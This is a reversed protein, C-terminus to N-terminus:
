PVQEVRVATPTSGGINVLIPDRDNNNGVYKVVGDLNVDAAHYGTITASPTSGGIALLIPDRDNGNGVYKLEGDGTVDGAWLLMTSGVQKQANTGYTAFGSQMFNITNPQATNSLMNLPAASMAALHNRHRVVVYYMGPTARLIVDGGIDGKGLRGNTRLLFQGSAVLQAPDSAARLEVRVWDVARHGGNLAPNLGATTAVEGGGGIQPYGMATYPEVLPILGQLRLDERMFGTSSNFAGELAFSMYNLSVGYPKRYVIINDFTAGVDDPDEEHIDAVLVVGFTGAAPAPGGLHWGSVIHYYPWMGFTMPGGMYLDSGDFWALSVVGCQFLGPLLLDPYCEADVMYAHDPSYGGPIPIFTMPMYPPTNVFGQWEEPYMHLGLGTQTSFFEPTWGTYSWTAGFQGNDFNINLVEELQARLSACIGLLFFTLSLARMCSASRFKSAGMPSRNSQEFVNM